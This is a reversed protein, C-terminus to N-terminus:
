DLFSTRAQLGRCTLLPNQQNFESRRYESEKTDYLFDDRYCIVDVPREKVKNASQKLEVRVLPDADPVGQLV